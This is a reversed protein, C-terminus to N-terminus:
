FFQKMIIKLQRKSNRKESFVIGRNNYSNPLNPNIEISRNLYEIAKDFQKLQLYSTGLLFYLKDNEQEKLLDLYIEQAESIKGSQHLEKALNFKKEKNEM